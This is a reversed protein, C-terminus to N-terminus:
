LESSFSPSLLQRASFALRVIITFNRM